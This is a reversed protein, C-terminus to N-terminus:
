FTHQDSTLWWPSVARFNLANDQTRAKVYEDRIDKWAGREGDSLVEEWISEATVGSGLSGGCFLPLHWMELLFLDKPSM